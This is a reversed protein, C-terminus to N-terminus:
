HTQQNIVFVPIYWILLYLLLHQVPLAAAQNQFVLYFVILMGFLGAFTSLTLASRVAGALKDACRLVQMFPGAGERTLVAAPADGKAYRPDLLRAVGAPDPQDAFGRRLDFEEEVMAPSVNFDRAAIVANMHMRRMLRMAKSTNKTPLYRLTIMGKDRGRLTNGELTVGDSSVVEWELTEAPRAPEYAPYASAGEPLVACSLLIWDSTEIGGFGNKMCLLYLGGVAIVMSLWLRASGRRGLCLGFVPVLVVYMATLFGAKATSPNLTIGIQQAASAAFLLTGCCLGATLLLRRDAPAKPWGYAAGHRRHLADFARVTPLLVLVALWSRGALFSYAGMGSGASQAVFATGWIFACLMLM